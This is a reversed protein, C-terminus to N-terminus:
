SEWFSRAKREIDKSFHVSKSNKIIKIGQIILNDLLVGTTGKTQNRRHTRKVITM